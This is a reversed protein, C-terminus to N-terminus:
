VADTGLFESIRRRVLEIHLRADYAGSRFPPPLRMTALQRDIRALRKELGRLAEADLEETLDLEIKRIEAYHRWVRRHMTWRYLVPLVQFAPIVLFILPLLILLVRRIQAAIWYPLWDHFASQGEILLKLAGADIPMDVAETTPFQGQQAFIGNEGHIERAALVLRDVIAPHLDEVAVLRALLTVTPMAARPIVPGLSIAGSPITAVRSFPLRLSIADTHSLRLLDVTESAYLPKLYEAGVPAVFIAVDLAGALLATGAAEGGLDSLENRDAVGLRTLLEDVAVRTGSGAGGRAIRLGDWLSPNAPVSSNKNVFVLIPEVLVTGLANIPLGEAPIGGQLLGVDVDDTALLGLNEVSGATEVIEVTIGDRALIEQYQEAINWYGGDRGGAAFRIQDPPPLDRLLYAALALLLGIALIVSSLRM